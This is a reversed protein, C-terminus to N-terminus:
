EVIFKELSFNTQTYLILKVTLFQLAVYLLIADGSNKRLRQM